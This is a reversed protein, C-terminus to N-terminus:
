PCITGPKQNGWREPALWSAQDGTPRLPSARWRRAAARPPCARRQQGSGHPTERRAPGAIALLVAALLPALPEGGSRPPVARDM